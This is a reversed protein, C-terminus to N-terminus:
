PLQRRLLSRPIVDFQFVHYLDHTILRYLPEAPEDIPLVMRDRYPEAFALVGEPLESSEINQQQFESQTKYLVLPVKYALDHKLDSSVQQYASEAYSTVRELHPEVDPYFYIEFHDTTYVRWKFDDYRIHNKGFYPVYPTQASAVHAASMIVALAVLSIGPISLSALTGRTPRTRM